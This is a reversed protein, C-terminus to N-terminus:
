LKYRVAEELLRQQANSLSYALMMSLVQLVRRTPQM